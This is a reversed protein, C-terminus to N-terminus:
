FTCKSYNRSCLLARQLLEMAPGAHSFAREGFKTRLWPTVYKSSSASRLGTCIAASSATSIIDALYALCGGTHIGYRYMITCLKFDIRCRIPLWHLVLLSPMVHDRIDLQYVLYAAANQICQLTSQPIDALLANCYDLRSMVLALVLQSTVEARIHRCIECLQPIRNYCASSVKIVHAKVSLDKDLQIPM